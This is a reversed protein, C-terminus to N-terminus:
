FSLTHPYFHLLSVEIGELFFDNLNKVLDYKTILRKDALKEPKSKKGGTAGM